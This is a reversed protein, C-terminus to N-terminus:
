IFFSQEFFSILNICLGLLTKNMVELVKHESMLSELPLPSSQRPPGMGRAIARVAEKRAQALAPTWDYGHRVHEEVARAFYNGASRYGWQKFMSGVGRLADVTLPFPDAGGSWADHFTEWTKWLSARPADSSSAFADKDLRDM